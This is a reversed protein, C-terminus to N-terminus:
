LDIVVRFGLDKSGTDDSRDWGRNGSRCRDAPSVWGGGRFVHYSGTAAGAPNTQATTTYDDYWDSCWEWVNGTMDYLGYANAAYTGVALTKGPSTTSTNTCTGYPTVWDYNAQLNSLCTGTYFVTTTNARCAYEWEAETPLRGGVYTAFETAGYWTVYIVPFAEYGAVPVWQSGSYHLGWDYNGSSAYILPQTPYAGAAYLGNSGISKANLFAAYQANTIEYKSMRFASLTVQHQTEDSWRDLEDSPSGGTFTGAPIIVTSIDNTDQNNDNNDKKCRDTFIFVLGMLILPYMLITKKKKM